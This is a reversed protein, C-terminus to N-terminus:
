FLNVIVQNGSNMDSKILTNDFICDKRKSALYDVMVVALILFVLMIFIVAYTVPILDERKILMLFIFPM